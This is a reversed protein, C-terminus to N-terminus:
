WYKTSLLNLMVFKLLLNLSTLYFLYRDCLMRMGLSCFHLYSVFAFCQLIGLYNKAVNMVTMTLESSSFYIVAKKYKRLFCSKSITELYYYYYYYDVKNISPLVNLLRTSIKWTARKKGPYFGTSLLTSLTEQELFCCKCDTPISGPVERDRTRRKVVAGCREVPSLKCWINLSNAPFSSLKYSIKFGTKQLLFFVCLFDM